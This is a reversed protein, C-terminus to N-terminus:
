EESYSDLISSTLITPLTYGIRSQTKLMSAAIQPRHSKSQHCTTGSLELMQTSALFRVAYILVGVMSGLGELVYSTLECHWRLQGFVQERVWM